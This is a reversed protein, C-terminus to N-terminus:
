DDVSSVFHANVYASGSTYVSVVVNKGTPVVIDSIDPIDVSLKQDKPVHGLYRYLYVTSTGVEDSPTGIYIGIDVTIDLNSTVSYVDIYCDSIIVNVNKALLVKTEDASPVYNGPSEIICCKHDIGDGSTASAYYNCCVSYPATQDFSTRDILKSGLQTSYDIRGGVSRM